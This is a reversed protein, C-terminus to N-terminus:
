SPTVDTEAHDITVVTVENVGDLTELVGVIAAVLADKDAQSISVSDGNVPVTFALEEQFGAGGNLRFVYYPQAPHHVTSM